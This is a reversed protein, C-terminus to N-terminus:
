AHGGSKALSAATRPLIIRFETFEGPQTDVEISGAHQKVIIDYSISLGLGTGEGAPKTTFFPNFMKEKVEAPIGTGNDRIRIEVRDGLNKTAAALTPEYGNDGALGKRNTAAYFGNSILNLLVRTIEQPFLDVDGASPDFSRKLTINFGQKEARAGHYALNLSEEVVANIDVPRHEGSGARSHLLMNKVISDARKGHQVIKDLNGRLTDTLDDIESRVKQDIPLGKLTDQLEDILEGSVGSFNNVFNLPNKIEHAIGATLQGLSALKETQVLRDQATRLDELSAALERTRAEVSEFLRVNEIAIVAQDAFTEALEIQKDSFPQVVSRQLLLVGVPTGERLLPVGLATRVNGSRSRNVVDLNPDALADILHVSKGESVVRGVISGPGPSLPERKMREKHEPLFGYSASHYYLNDKVLRIASRDARCLRAASEVLTDLVVQLDFTSRSIVKLVDATATQQELSESLDDTRKQLEDFLRANEIAIVAQDAFAKILAVQKDNFIRPEHNAVGIAGVVNDGRIMPAFIAAEFDFERAFDQMTRPAAPNGQVPSIQFVQKTLMARGGGTTDDLPRPYRDILREFGPTGDVAPMYITRDKLLQVVAFGTGFLRLLNRVIADFVPKTDTLSGSISALIESTATQQELSEALERSRTQVEDFLRVNEIAIAAQDAFTTVLEIQKDTFPRVDSRSLTLVGIPVGERMMPVALITRFDGLKQAEVWTYEPDAKVDAIHVVRGELLSRGSASGREAKIPIDQVYDMFERSFGYAEARYFAGDRERTITANEADCLRAASEVLTQLVTKLDFTSRSIVKLVDATATQQQLSQRLEDLLRANEIAIVAQAAFNKLLEIQKDTFPKVEQRYIIIAGALEADKLLPVGVVTRAGGLEALDILPRNGEAYGQVTTIDSIHAIQRTRVIHATPSGPAPRFFPERQRKEAFAPPVDHMAVTRFGDDESLYLIGFKAGCIRVANELMGKFVPELQGPSSSITKLVDATATQRDLAEKTENFLRVNEIAIVAQDAFTRLLQVQANAFLGPEKRAVFIAGVVQEDRIMPVALCGRFGSARAADKSQYLHDSLVDPVHCVTGSRIARATATEDGRQMPYVRRVAEVGEESVGNISVLRILEGDVMSIVSIEADCLKEARQGITDFVPKLDDLSSSIVKLVDATATQQQLSERLESLLRANEIAIVAQAAFNKVLEVQKDTFSRVEQRYMAIVGILEGEKLMPVLVFTRAGATEVLSIIRSDKGIYSQDTRLDPIHVVQKSKAIRALPITPHERMDIVPNRRMDDAFSQMSHVAVARFVNGEFLWLNGFTAECIRTANALMANFVPELEGPSSSIVKLVESTATQQELSERLENLLRANEIAIVAQDAFTRVLAIQQDAFPRVERRWIAIVGVLEGERLLPVALVTRAREYQLVIPSFGPEATIDAVHVARRELAALRVPGARGPELTTGMYKNAFEPSANYHAVGILSKGDYRWLAALNGECLRTANALIADFVPVLNTPSSSIIGLVESMATQQELSESLDDTRQRLENLLRANEIAIVAQAAFNQVLAIQKDTFPRVEQRYMNIAGILEGEKLMPVAVFTRAGVVEVLPVIFQNKGIYAEDNRLDPIHVIQKTSTLRDLPVGPNERLDIVQNRRLIDDYSAKNHIAVPRFIPGERLFLNGFTAECIRTANALMASFVPELEGPSSSIVKLVESTATQQELSETLDDTRERLENLLRANEIAIVAQAAFNKVLEIQKDTFPRVEQRYIGITGVLENEKIMPVILLTRAGALDALPVFAPERDIYAAEKTIDAIHQLQKTKVVRGLPNKPGPRIVPDKHRLEAWEPPAGHMAPVRFEGGEYLLLNAFQADCIQTANELIAKFVPKLDGPSSSIVRLVESTATQQELAESLESTRQQEADFLRVNEIAIVAQDAFTEVLEIQKQTFPQVTSRGLLLVGIPTGKRLLPVGLMTRFGGKKQSELYAYEPDSLVDTIQVAKGEIMTRGIVSGRNVPHPIGKVFELYDAPFGYSTAYYFASDKERAIAAMEADCLRAASETLTDLVPQLDFTSRSIVKLVDATATQQQLSERLERLLRTNEIAIVAQKAFNNVLEIQKHTFPRVEQRYIVIVGILEDDKLMPVAVVTRAGALEITGIRFTSPKRYADETTVDAIHVVQRTAEVRGIASGPIPHIVPERRLYDAYAPPAGHVAGIRFIDGERLWLNGFNADCIRVANELMTRFMPELEGPSSSIVQLVDSTATQQELSEGLDDTRQRLENLLRANEIAIVAQAAFNSVLEIQKDTFPRVEQHFISISGVLEGEKLMPVNLHTRAGASEVLAVFRSEREIYSPEARLDTIHVISRTAALRDLPNRPNKGVTLVPQKRWREAYAPPANLQAAIRFANEEYLFLNAFKAGCIRTANELIANFVPELKGPSSSIVGLVESTATQQELSESLDDTRQRLENLLRANEIAIVAQAAFNQVLEIQRDSFPRVEQRFINISGLLEDDKLLPVGLGTRFGGLEVAAVVFPHREAYSQLKTLDAIHAIRKTAAVRGLPADPAPRLKAAHKRAEVYAQPADRTAAVASFSDGDRLYLIAFKAECIRSAKELMAGFVPELEGPSSSIIKLVESTAALQEQAEDLERTRRDLQEKLDSDAGLSPSLRASAAKPRVSKRRQAKGPGAPGSRTKM